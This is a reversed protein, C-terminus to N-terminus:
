AHILVDAMADTIKQNTKNEIFLWQGAPNVELFVYNDDPTKKFDFAGYVLGTKKMFKRIKTCLGKPLEARRISMHDYNMRFDVDYNGPEVEIAAPFIKDGVVTVRLDIGKVYEQFIVPAFKVKEINSIEDEGLLRTERWAEPTGGFAKFITGSPGHKKHFELAEEPNNTVLTDPVDFGLEMAIKLQYVKKHALDDLFPDNMWKGELMGWLGGFVQQAESFAFMRHTQDGVESPINFPQPRRWWISKSKALDIKEPQGNKYWIEQNGNKSNYKLEVLSQSPFKGLDLIVAKEGKSRLSNLVCKTHLDEAHSIILIM